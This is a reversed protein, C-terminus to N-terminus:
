LGGRILKALTEHGSFKLDSPFNNRMELLKNQNHLLDSLEQKLGFEAAKEELLIASNVRNLVLANEYQHGGAFPYPIIIAPLKFFTLEYITSAGSRCVCVDALSFAVPMEKLFPFVRAKQNQRKNYFSKVELEDGFGSIHIIQADNPKFVSDVCNLFLRNIARSGTSGGLVLVTFEKPSLKFFDAAQAKDFRKLDSRLPLGTCVMREKIRSNKCSDKTQSFSVALTDSFNALFRNAKGLIVNQEHIINRIHFMRAILVPMLSVYGGFGVIIDPKLNKITNFTKLSTILLKVISNLVSLGINFPLRCDLFVINFKTNKLIELSIKNKETLIFVQASTDKQILEGATNLAPILHGGSASCAFLIKM